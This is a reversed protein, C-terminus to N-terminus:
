KTGEMIGQFMKTREVKETLERLYERREKKLLAIDKWCGIKESLQSESIELKKYRLSTKENAPNSDAIQLRENEKLYGDIETKLSESESHVQKSLSERGLIMEDIEQISEKLAEVKAAGFEGFSDEDFGDKEHNKLDELASLDLDNLKDQQYKM